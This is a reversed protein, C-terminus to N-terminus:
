RMAELKLVGVSWVSCEHMQQGHAPSLAQSLEWRAGLGVSIHGCPMVLQYCVICWCLRKSPQWQMEGQVLVTRVTCLRHFLVM